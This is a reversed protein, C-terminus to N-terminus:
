KYKFHKTVKNKTSTFLVDGPTPTHRSYKGYKYGGRHRYNGKRKSTYKKRNTYKKVM